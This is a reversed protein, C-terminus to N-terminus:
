WGHLCRLDIPNAGANYIEIWDDFQGTEDPIITKNSPMVENIFLQAFSFTPLLLLLLFSPCKM